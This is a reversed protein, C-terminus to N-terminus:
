VTVYTAADSIGCENVGAIIRIYGEEGWAAGWSNKIIWYPKGQDTGSGILLMAHDLVEDSCTDDFVGSEYFRFTDCYVAVTVPGLALAEGLASENAPPVNVYGTIKTGSADCKKQCTGEKATYPYSTETCLSDKKIYDLADYTFGGNCGQNGFSGSCDVLQQESLSTLNQTKIAYASETGGTAAFAWCAGCKDENQDKVPTVVLKRRWDIDAITVAKFTENGSKRRGNYNAYASRFEDLTLDSMKNLAATWSKSNRANLGAVNKANESFIGFRYAEIDANAYTKSFKKQFLLFEEKLLLDETTLSGCLPSMSLILAVPLKTKM